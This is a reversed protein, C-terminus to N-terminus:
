PTASAAPTAAPSPMPVTAAPTAGPTATAAAAEGRPMERPLLRDGRGKFNLPYDVLTLSLNLGAPTAVEVSKLDLTVHGPSAVRVRYRGSPLTTFTFDGKEGSFTQYIGKGELSVFAVSVEAVPLRQQDRLLGRVPAGAEVGPNAAGTPSTLAPAAGAGGAAALDLQFDILNQFPPRVEVKSKSQRQYGEAGVEIDYSGAPLDQFLYQGLEDTGTVRLLGSQDRSSLLVMQSALPKKGAGYVTGRIRGFVERGKGPQAPAAGDQGRALDNFGVLAFALGAAALATAIRLFPRSRIM